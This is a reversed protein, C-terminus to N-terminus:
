ETALQREKTVASITQRSFVLSSLGAMLAASIFLIPAGLGSYISGGLTAGLIGGLGTFIANYVAQASAGLGRPAIESARQVGAGWTLGWTPGDLLQTLIVWAPAKLMATLVCRFAMLANSFVMGQLASWRKFIRPMFIYTLINSVAAVAVLFGVMGDSAGLSRAFIYLYYNMFMQSLGALLCGLLFKRWSSERLFQRANRWFSEIKESPPKPLNIAMVAAIAMFIVYSIFIFNLSRDKALIGTVLSMMGVGMSGWLRVHGYETKRGGLNVLVANDSLPVIASYCAAFLCIGLFLDGFFYRSGLYLAFPFSFVMTLPLLYRHLNFRDAVAAWMPAAFLAMASPVAALIGVQILDMGQERYFLNLFATFGGFASYTFFILASTRIRVNKLQFFDESNANFFCRM